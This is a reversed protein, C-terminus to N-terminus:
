AVSAGLEAYFRTLENVSSRWSYREVVLKRASQGLREGISADALVRAVQHAFGAADDAMLIDREHQAEIGEAGLATSVIAKRMAMAELVKLRTGGGIRLPVIVVAARAIYPRVDDVYGVVEVSSDHWETISPPPKPGVVRLRAAPRARKLIPWADRLFFLLGDTNPYYNIAGFFLVTDPEVAAAVPSFSDVDVGNPIVATKAGPAESALMREDRASTVACGDFRRWARREELRLKRWDVANYVRRVVGVDAGATRRLVDYEINHEDLCFRAPRWSTRIHYAAMQSFEIQVIDFGRGGLVRDLARQMAAKRHIRYEYSHVSLLSQIQDWRKAMVGPNLIAGPVTVVTSCYERTARMSEAGEDGPEVFSLVSIDHQRALETMLGHM